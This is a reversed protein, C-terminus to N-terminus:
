RETRCPERGNDAIARGRDGPELPCLDDLALRASSEVLQPPSLQAAVAVADIAIVICSLRGRGRSREDHVLLV